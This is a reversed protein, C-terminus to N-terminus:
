QYISPKPQEGHSTISEEMIYSQGYKIAQHIKLVRRTNLKFDPGVTIKQFCKSFAKNISKYNDVM